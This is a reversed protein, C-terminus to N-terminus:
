LPLLLRPFHRLPSCVIVPNKNNPVKIINRISPTGMATERATAVMDAITNEGSMVRDKLTTVWLINPPRSEVEM